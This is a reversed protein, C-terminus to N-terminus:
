VGLPLPCLYPLHAELQIETSVGEVPLPVENYHFM